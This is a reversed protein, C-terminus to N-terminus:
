TGGCHHEFHNRKREILVSKDYWKSIKFRAKDIDLDAVADKPMIAWDFDCETKRNIEDIARRIENLKSM